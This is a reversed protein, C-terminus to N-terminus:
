IYKELNTRRVCPEDFSEYWTHFKNYALVAPVILDKENWWFWRWVDETGEETRAIAVRYEERIDYVRLGARIFSYGFERQAEEQSDYDNSGNFHPLCGYLNWVADLAFTSAIGFSHGAHIRQGNWPAEDRQIACLYGTNPLSNYKRILYEDWNNEVLFYDDENFIFYDYEERLRSFTDSFAGYSLGVNKRLHVEVPTNQLKQPVIKLAENVYEYHEPDVNLNFVIKDLNHYYHGLTEIHKRLFTLRDTHYDDITRRREGFYFNVVLCSRKRMFNQPHIVNTYFSPVHFRISAPVFLNRDNWHFFNDIFHNIEPLDWKRNEGMDHPVRYDERIDYINYGMKFIEHTQSIQGESESHSYRDELDQQQQNGHPLRGFKDYVKKLVESSSIGISNGAHTVKPNAPSPNMVVGCLYGINQFSNFKDVLYRDFRDEVFFYDDENFIYYDYEGQHKEYADSWAGYSMGINEREVLEVEAGQIRRPILTKAQEYLSTHEKELNFVFVIRTLDHLTEQLSKVHEKVYTLRDENYQKVANRRDGFYVCCVYCVKSQNINKAM